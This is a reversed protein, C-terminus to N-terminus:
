QGVADLGSTEEGGQISVIIKGPLCVIPPDTNYRIKGRTICVQDPCGAEEMWVTKDRIVLISTGVASQLEVTQDKALDYRAYEEGNIWVVAEAGDKRFFFMAGVMLLLVACITGILILDNKKMKDTRSWKLRIVARKMMVYFAGISM